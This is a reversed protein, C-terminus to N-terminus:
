LTNNLSLGYPWFYLEVVKNTRPAPVYLDYIRIALIEITRRSCAVLCRMQKQRKCSRETSTPRFFCPLYYTHSPTGRLTYKQSHLMQKVSSAGLFRSLFILSYLTCDPLARM